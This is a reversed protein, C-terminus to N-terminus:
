SAVDSIADKKSKETKKKITHKTNQRTVNRQKAITYNAPNKIKKCFGDPKCVGLDIMYAKNSCNPPLITKKNAKHHRLQGLLLVERLPEPNLENWKKLYEEIANYEWGCSRLFNILIFVARKKGDTLGKSILQICPPFYEEPISHLVPEFEKKIPKIIIEEREIQADFASVLLKTAEGPLTKERELFPFTKQITLPKAHDKKFSLIQEPKIVTSALGSKENLSYPMRYLHRTAILITDIALITFPDLKKNIFLEEKKKNIKNAITEIDHMSLLRKTLETKIMDQLYAAIKRPGDPFLNKTSINNVREPFAEFPIGIHFGHNGSFKIGINKVGHYQLAQIILDAAIKSYELEPCDIDLLLDWGTRINNLEGPSMGTTIQLPNNWLEESCHFSTAGQKVLELIDQPYQLVDPRKGYGTGGYSVAIEKSTAASVLAEQIHKQKYYKLLINLPIKQYTSM